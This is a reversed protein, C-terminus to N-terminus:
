QCVAQGNDGSQGILWGLGMGGLFGNFGSGGTNYHNHVEPAPNIRPAPKPQPKPKPAVKPTTSKTPAKPAPNIRQPKPASPARFSPAPARFSPSPARFGGGGSYGATQATTHTAPASSCDAPTQQCGTLAATMAATAIIGAVLKTRFKM